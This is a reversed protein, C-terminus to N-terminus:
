NTNNARKSRNNASFFSAGHLADDVSSIHHLTAAQLEQVAVALSPDKEDDVNQVEDKPQIVDKGYRLAGLGTNMKCCVKIRQLERAVIAQVKQRKVHRDMRQRQSSFAWDGFQLAEYIYSRQRLPASMLTTQCTSGDPFFFSCCDGDREVQLITRDTFVVRIRGCRFARFRGRDTEAEDVVQLDDPQPSSLPSVVQDLAQINYRFAQLVYDIHQCFSATSIARKSDTDSSPPVTERTFRHQLRGTEDYLTFFGDCEMLLSNCSDFRLVVNPLSNTPRRSVFLTADDGIVEVSINRYLTKSPLSAVRLVEAMALGNKENGSMQVGGSSSAVIALAPRATFAGNEPLVSVHASSDDEKKFLAFEIKTDQNREWAAKVALLFKVPFEFCDPIQAVMFSQHMTAYHAHSLEEKEGDEDSVKVEVLYYFEVLMGSMHLQVKAAGEISHMEFCKEESNYLRSVKVNGGNTPWRARPVRIRRQYKVNKADLLRLHIYPPKATFQNRLNLTDLIMSRHSSMATPTLHRTHTGKPQIYSYTHGSADLVVIHTEHLNRQYCGIATGDELVVCRLRKTKQPLM